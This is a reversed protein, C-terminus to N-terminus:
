FGWLRVLLALADILSREAWYRGRKESPCPGFGAQSAKVLSQGHRLVADLVRYHHPLIAGQIEAYDRWADVDIEGAVAPGTPTNDYKAVGHRVRGFRRNVVRVFRDAALIHSPGIEGRDYLDTITSREGAARFTAAGDCGMGLTSTHVVRAGIAGLTHMQPTARGSRPDDREDAVRDRRAVVKEVPRRAKKRAVEAGERAARVKAMRERREAAEADRAAREEAEWKAMWGGM